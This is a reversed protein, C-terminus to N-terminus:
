KQFLRKRLTLNTRALMVLLIIIQYATHTHDGPIIKMPEHIVEMLENLEEMNIGLNEDIFNVQLPVEEEQSTSTAPTIDGKRVNKELPKRFLTRRSKKEKNEYGFFLTTIPNEDTALGDVFNISYVRNSPAPQWSEKKEFPERRM